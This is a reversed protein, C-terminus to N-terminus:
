PAEDIWAQRRPNPRTSVHVHGRQRYYILQDIPLTALQARIAHYVTESPVSAIEFDAALGKMHDSDDAGGIWGNVLEDRIWSTITVPAGWIARIPELVDVALKKANALQTPTPIITHGRAAATRSVVAEGLRFHPSLYTMSNVLSAGAAVAAPTLILGVVALAAAALVGVLALERTM